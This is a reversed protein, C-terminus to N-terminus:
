DKALFGAGRCILVRGERITPPSPKFYPDIIPYYGVLKSFYGVQEAHM